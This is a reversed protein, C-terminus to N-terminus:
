EFRMRISIWRQVAEKQQDDFQQSHIDDELRTTETLGHIYTVGLECGVDGWCEVEGRFLNDLSVYAGQGQM